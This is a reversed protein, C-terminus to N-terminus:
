KHAVIKPKNNEIAISWKRGDPAYIHGIYGFSTPESLLLDFDFFYTKSNTTEVTQALRTMSTQSHQNDTISIDWSDPNLM